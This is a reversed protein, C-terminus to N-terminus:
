SGDVAHITAEISSDIHIVGFTHHPARRRQTPSGPNFMLTGNREAQFPLHSHGFIAINYHGALKQEVAQEATLRGFGHGHIMAATFSGFRFSRRPPLRDTLRPDDNNGRVGRLEGLASIMEYAAVSSFDGAHLILDAHKLTDILQAPFPRPRDGFHTDAIVAITIPTDFVELPEPASLFGPESWSKGFRM